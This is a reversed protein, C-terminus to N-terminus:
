PEVLIVPSGTLELGIVGAQPTLSTKAGTDSFDWAHLEFSADTALDLHAAAAEDATGYAWLVLAQRDDPLRFAHGRVDGGLGLGATAAPDYLAGALLAGHTRAAVGTPTRMADEKAALDKVDFYLGMEGFPDGPEADSLAFWDVRVFGEAQARTMVKAYFNRAYEVGGPQGNLASRPAGVETVSFPRPAAGAAQMKAAYQDRLAIFGDAGADSSGPTWLPYYHYNLVDFYAAGTDPFEASVQGGDPNDTYRLLADLFSPYGIGGLAIQADPDALRAAERTVRLMRVYDFISGGFRVLQEATPPQEDWTLTFNYDAVWDPENWVEWLDVHDKYTAVTQHVYAAWYNGPNIAGDIIAPEYLNAPIFHALEWEQTGDPATSHAAIPSILFAIHHDLGDAAYAAMDGVEIEYGWKDLHTEPLSLRATTCGANAALYAMDPDTWSPNRFGFNIGRGFPGGLAGPEDGTDGTDATTDGTDDPTGTADPDPGTDDPGSDDTAGPDGTGPPDGTTPTSETGDGTQTTQTTETGPDGTAGDSGGGNCAGVGVVLVWTSRRM